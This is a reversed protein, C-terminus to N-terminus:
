SPPGVTALLETLMAEGTYPDCLWKSADTLGPYLYQETIVRIRLKRRASM